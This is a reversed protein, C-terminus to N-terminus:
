WEVGDLIIDTWSIPHKSNEKAYALMKETMSKVTEEDIRTYHEDDSFPDYKCDRMYDRTNVKVWDNTWPRFTEFPKDIDKTEKKSKTYEKRYLHYDEDSRCYVYKKGM